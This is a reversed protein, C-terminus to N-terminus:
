VSFPALLEVPRSCAHPQPTERIMSTIACDPPFMRFASEIPTVPHERNPLPAITAPAVSM